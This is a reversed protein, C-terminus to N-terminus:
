ENVWARSQRPCGQLMQQAAHRHNTTLRKIGHDGGEPRVYFHHFWETRGAETLSQSLGVRIVGEPTYRLLPTM